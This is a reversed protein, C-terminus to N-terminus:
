PFVKNGIENIPESKAYFVEAEYIEFFV